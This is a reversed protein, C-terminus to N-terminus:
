IELTRSFGSNQNLDLESALAQFQPYKQATVTISRLWMEFSSIQNGIYNPFKEMM